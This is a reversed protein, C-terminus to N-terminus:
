QLMPWNNPIPAKPLFLYNKALLVTGTNVMKVERNYQEIRERIINSIEDSYIQRSKWSPCSISSASQLWDPLPGMIGTDALMLKFLSM